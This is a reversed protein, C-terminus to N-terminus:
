HQTTNGYKKGDGWTGTNEDNTLANGDNVRAGTIDVDDMDDARGFKLNIYWDQGATDNWCDPDNGELWVRVIIKTAKGYQGGTGPDLTVFGTGYNYETAAQYVNTGSGQVTGNILGIGEKFVAGSNNKGSYWNLISPGAFPNANLTGANSSTMTGSMGDALKLLGTTNGNPATGSLDQSTPKLIAVRVAKYLAENDANATKNYSRPAVYGKVTLTTTETSSTRLWVPIDVYYGDDNTVNWNTSKKYGGVGDTSTGSMSSWKDNSDTVAHLTTKATGSGTTGGDDIGNFSLGNADNVAVDAKRYLAGDKVTKGVGNADATFFIHEGTDSSAPMLKGIQYYHSFDATDAWDWVNAPATAQGNSAAGYLYGTNAALSIGKGSTEEETSSKGLKGLSIQIDEPTTAVMSINTVEVERSMTFWAYTSTGLM